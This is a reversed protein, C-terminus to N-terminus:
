RILLNLLSCSLEENITITWKRGKGAGGEKSRQMAEELTIENGDEDIMKADKKLATIYKSSRVVKPVNKEVIVKERKTKELMQAKMKARQAKIM